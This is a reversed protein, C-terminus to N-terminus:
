RIFVYEFGQFVVFATVGIAGARWGGVGTAARVARPFAVLFLVLYVVLTCWIFVFWGTHGSISAEWAQEDIVGVARLPSTVLDPVLTGLTGLGVAGAMCTLVREFSPRAGAWYTLAFVVNSALLWAVVITPAYFLTGWWFYSDADIRLFPEPMARADALALLLAVVSYGVAALALLPYAVSPHFLRPTRRPTADPTTTTTPYTTTAM